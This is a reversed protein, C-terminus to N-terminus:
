YHLYGMRVFIQHQFLCFAIHLRMYTLQKSECTILVVVMSRTSYICSYHVNTDTDLATRHVNGRMLWRPCPPRCSPSQPQDPSCRSVAQLYKHYRHHHCLLHPPGTWCSLLPSSQSTSSQIYHM